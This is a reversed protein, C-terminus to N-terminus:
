TQTKNILDEIKYYYDWYKKGAKDYQPEAISLMIRTTIDALVLHIRGKYFWLKKMTYAFINEMVKKNDKNYKEYHEKYEAFDNKKLADVLLEERLKLEEDFLKSMEAIYEENHKKSFNFNDLISKKSETDGSLVFQNRIIAGLKNGKKLERILIDPVGAVTMYENRIAQELHDQNNKLTTFKLNLKNLYDKDYEFSDVFCNYASKFMNLEILKPIIVALKENSFHVLFSAAALYNEKAEDHLGENKLMRGQLLLLQFLRIENQYQPIETELTLKEPKDAFMWGDTQGSTAQKFIEIAKVNANVWADVDSLQKWEEILISSVEDKIADPIPILEQYAQQYLEKTKEPNLVIEDAHANVLICFSAVLTLIIKKM